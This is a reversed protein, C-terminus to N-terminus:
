TKLAFKQKGILILLIGGVIFPVQYLYSVAMGTNWGVALASQLTTSLVRVVAILLLYVGVIVLSPYLIDGITYFLRRKAVRVLLFGIMLACVMGLASTIYSVWVYRRMDDSGFDPPNALLVLATLVLLIASPVLFIYGMVIVATRLAKAEEAPKEIRDHLSGATSSEKIAQIGVM